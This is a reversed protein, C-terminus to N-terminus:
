NQLNEGNKIIHHGYSFLYWDRGTKRYQLRRFTVSLHAPGPFSALSRYCKHCVFVVKAAGWSLKKVLGSSIYTTKSGFNQLHYQALGEHLTAHEWTEELM